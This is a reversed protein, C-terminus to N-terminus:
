LYFDFEGDSGGDGNGYGYGGREMAAEEADDIMRDIEDQEAEALNDIWMFAKRDRLRDAPMTHLFVDAAMAELQGIYTKKGPVLQRIADFGVRKSGTHM